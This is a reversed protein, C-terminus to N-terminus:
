RVPVQIYALGKKYLKLYKIINAVQKNFFYESVEPTYLHKIIHLQSLPIVVSRLIRATFLKIWPHALILLDARRQESAYAFETRTATM